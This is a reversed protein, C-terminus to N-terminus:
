PTPHTTFTDNPPSHLLHLHLHVKREKIGLLDVIVGDLVKQRGEELALLEACAVQGVEDDLLVLVDAGHDLDFALVLGVAEDGDDVEVLVLHPGEGKLKSEDGVGSARTDAQSM